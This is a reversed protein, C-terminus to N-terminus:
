ELCLQWKNNTKKFNDNNNLVQRIKERLYNNNQAKKSKILINYIEDITANNHLYQITAQILDRWTINVADIINKQSIVISKETFVWIKDKRFVLLHEHKIPIFNNNSYVKSDSLCNYQVKIIHSELEGYWNMDKIISYYKGQKRVDGILTAHRGGNVLSHFIKENVINLKNIFEEYPMANSLDNEAYSKRENEYSIIDWYPPHSFVFDSGSPIQDKLADWGNLLDLHLSNNIGLEKAVDRGTGGGSFVEIFKKPKTAPFFQNILDKIIYGTCNGRYQSNGYNGRDKYSVISQM